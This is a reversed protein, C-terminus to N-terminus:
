DIVATLGFEKLTGIVEDRVREKSNEAGLQYAEVSVTVKGNIRGSVVVLQGRSRELDGLTVNTDLARIFVTEAPTGDVRALDPPLDGLNSCSSPPDEAYSFLLEAIGKVASSPLWPMLAMMEIVPDPENKAKERASRIADRAETLDTTVKAPDVAANSFAMALARM